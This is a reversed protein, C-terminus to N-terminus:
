RKGALKGLFDMTKTAEEEADSKLERAEASNIDGFPAPKGKVKEGLSGIIEENRKNAASLGELSSVLDAIRAELADIRKKYADDDQTPKVEEKVVEAEKTPKGGEKTTTVKDTEGNKDDDKTPTPEGGEGVNTNQNVNEKAKLEEIFQNTQEEDVSWNALLEKIQEETFM